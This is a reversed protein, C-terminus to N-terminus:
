CVLQGHCHAAVRLNGLRVLEEVIARQESYQPEIPNTRWTLAGGTAMVKIYDAGAKVQARVARRLDDETDAQLGFFGATAAM